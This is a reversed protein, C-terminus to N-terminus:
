ARDFVALTSVQEHEVAIRADVDRRGAIDRLDPTRIREQRSASCADRGPAASLDSLMSGPM